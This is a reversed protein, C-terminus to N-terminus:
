YLVRQTAVSLYKGEDKNQQTRQTAVAVVTAKPRIDALPVDGRLPLPGYPYQPRLPVFM